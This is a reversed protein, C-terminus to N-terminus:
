KSSDEYSSVSEDILEFGIVDENLDFTKKM